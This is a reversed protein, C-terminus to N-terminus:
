HSCASHQEAPLTRVLHEADVGRSRGNLSKGFQEHSKKYDDTTEAMEAFMELCKMIVNENVVRLIKNQQFHECSINRLLIIVRAVRFLYNLFRPLTKSLDTLFYVMGRLLAKLFLEILFTLM